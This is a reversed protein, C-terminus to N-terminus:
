AQQEGVLILGLWVSRGGQQATFVGMLSLFEVGRLKKEESFQFLCVFSCSFVSLLNSNTTSTENLLKTKCDPAQFVEDNM